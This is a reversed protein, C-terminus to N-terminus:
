YEHQCFKTIPKNYIFEDKPTRVRVYGPHSSWGDERKCAHCIVQGEAHQTFLEFCWECHLVRKGPSTAANKRHKLRAAKQRKYIQKARCPECRPSMTNVEAKKCDICIKM